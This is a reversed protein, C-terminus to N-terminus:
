EVVRYTAVNKPIGAIARMTEGATAAHSGASPSAAM